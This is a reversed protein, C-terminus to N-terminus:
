VAQLIGSFLTAKSAESLSISVMQTMQLHVQPHIELAVKLRLAEKRSM